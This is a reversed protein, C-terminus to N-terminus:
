LVICWQSSRNNCLCTYFSIYSAMYRYWGRECEHETTNSLSWIYGCWLEVCHSNHTHYNPNMNGAGSVTFIINDFYRSCVCDTYLWIDNYWFYFVIFMTVHPTRSPLWHFSFIFLIRRHYSFQKDYWQEQAWTDFAPNHHAVKRKHSYLYLNAPCRDYLACIHKIKQKNHTDEM